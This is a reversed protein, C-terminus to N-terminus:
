NKRLGLLELETRVIERIDRYSSPEHKPADDNKRNWELCQSGALVYKLKEPEYKESKLWYIPKKNESALSLESQITSSNDADKSFLLVFARCESIASTVSESWSSGSDADRSAYWTELGFSELYESVRIGDKRRSNPFSLFIKSDNKPEPKPSEPKLEAKLESASEPSPDPIKQIDHILTDLTEDRRELWNLRHRMGLIYTLNEPEVDDVRLCIIQKEYKAAHYVETKVHRSADSNKSLILVFARCDRIATIIERDYDEGGKIDRPSYWAELDNKELYNALHVALDHEEAAHSLFIRSM